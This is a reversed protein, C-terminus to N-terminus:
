IPPTRRRRQGGRNRRARTRQGQEAVRLNRLASSNTAASRELRPHPSLPEVNFWLVDTSTVPERVPLPHEDGVTGGRSWVSVLISHDEGSPSADDSQNISSLELVGGRRIEDGWRCISHVGAQELDRRVQKLDTPADPVRFAHLLSTIKSLRTEQLHSAREVESAIKVAVRQRHTTPDQVLPASSESDGHRAM